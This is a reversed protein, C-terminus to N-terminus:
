KPPGETPFGIHADAADVPPTADFPEVPSATATADTTAFPSVSADYAGGNTEQPFESAAGEVANADTAPSPGSDDTATSRSADIGGCGVLAIGGIVLVHFM